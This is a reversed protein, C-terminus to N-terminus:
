MCFGLVRKECTNVRFGELLIAYRMLQIASDAPACMHVDAEHRSSSGSVVYAKLPEVDSVVSTDRNLLTCCVNMSFIYFQM